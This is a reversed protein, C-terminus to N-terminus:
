EDMYEHCLDYVSLWISEVQVIMITLCCKLMIFDDLYGIIV